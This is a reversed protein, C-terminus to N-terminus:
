HLQYLIQNANCILIGFMREWSHEHTPGHNNDHYGPLMKNYEEQLNIKHNNIMNVMTKWRFWFITGAVFYHNNESYVLNHKKCFNMIIPRNLNWYSIKHIHKNSAMIGINPMSQFLQYIEKIRDVSRCLPDVLENRWTTNSKTHLKLVYDYNKNLEMARITMLLQGGVDMGLVSKILIVDPYLTKITNLLHHDTQYSIYLDIPVSTSQQVRDIIPHFYSWLNFNGLHFFIAIYSDTSKKIDVTNINKISQTNEISSKNNIIVTDEISKNEVPKSEISKNEISKNEVPKSEISKNEISKNEISKNEVPKSEISKNEISKNEVPKSEVPKSEVPKSESSKNEVSNDEHLRNEIPYRHTNSPLSYPRRNNVIIFHHLAAEQNYIKLQKIHPLQIYETWNFHIKKDYSRNERHGFRKWHHLAFAKTCEYRAVDPNNILYAEWDFNPPLSM